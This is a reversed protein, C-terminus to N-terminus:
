GAIRIKEGSLDCDSIRLAMQASQRLGTFLRFEEFNDSQDRNTHDYTYANGYKSSQQNQRTIVGLQFRM